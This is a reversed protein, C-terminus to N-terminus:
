EVMESKLIETKAPKRCNYKGCACDWEWEWQYKKDDGGYNIYLYEGQKIGRTSCIWSTNILEGNMGITQVFCKCNAVHCKHNIFRLLNGEKSADVNENDGLSMIYESRYTTSKGQCEGIISDSPIDELACLGQGETGKMVPDNISPFCDTVFHKMVTWKNGYNGGLSYNPRTCEDFTANNKCDSGCNVKCGCKDYNISIKKTERPPQRHTAQKIEIPKENVVTEEVHLQLPIMGLKTDQCLTM